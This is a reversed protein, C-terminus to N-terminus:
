ERRVTKVGKPLRSRDAGEGPAVLLMTVYVGM